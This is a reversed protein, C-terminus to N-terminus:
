HVTTPEEVLGEGGIDTEDQNIELGNADANFLQEDTITDLSEIGGNIVPLTEAVDVTTINEMDNEKMREQPKGSSIQTLDIEGFREADKDSIM